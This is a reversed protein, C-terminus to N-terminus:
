AVLPPAIRRLLRTAPVAVAVVLAVYLWSRGPGEPVGLLAFGAMLLAPNFVFVGFSDRGTQRLWVPADWHALSPLALGLLTAGVLIPLRTYPTGTVGDWDFPTTGAGGAAAVGLAVLTTAVRAGPVWGPMQGSQSRDGIFAGLTFYYLWLWVGSGSGLAHAAARTLPLAEDQWAPAFRILLFGVLTLVFTAIVAGAHRWFREPLLYGSVFFVQVLIVFYYQGPYAAEGFHLLASKLTPVRAGERVLEVAWYFLGYAVHLRLFKWAYGALKGHGARSRGALYGTVLLFCPVALCAIGNTVHRLYWSPGPPAAHILVVGLIAAGKLGDLGALRSRTHAPAGTV